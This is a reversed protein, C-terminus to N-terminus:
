ATAADAVDFDLVLRVVRGATTLGVFCEFSGDGFGGECVIVNAAGRGPRYNFWENIGFREAKRRIAAVHRDFNRRLHAFHAAGAEPSFLGTAGEQVFVNPKSDTYCPPAAEVATAPEWSAVEADGFTVVIFACRENGFPLRKPLRAVVLEVPHEGSPVLRNLPPIRDASYADAVCVRGTPLVLRGADIRRIRFATGAEHRGRRVKGTRGSIAVAMRIAIVHSSGSM